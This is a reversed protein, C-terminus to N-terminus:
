ELLFQLKVCELVGIIEAAALKTHDQKLTENIVDRIKKDLKALEMNHTVNFNLVNDDM